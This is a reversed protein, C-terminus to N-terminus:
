ISRATFATAYLCRTERDHPARKVKSNEIFTPSRQTGSYLGRERAQDRAELPVKRREAIIAGEDVRELLGTSTDRMSLRLVPRDLAQV